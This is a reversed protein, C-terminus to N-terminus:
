MNLLKQVFGYWFSIIVIESVVQQDESRGLILPIQLFTTPFAVKAKRLIKEYLRSEQSNQILNQNWLWQLLRYQLFTSNFHKVTGFCPRIWFKM